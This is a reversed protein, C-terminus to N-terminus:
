HKQAQVACRGSGQPISREWISGIQKVVGKCGGHGLTPRQREPRHYGVPLCCASAVFREGVGSLLYNSQIRPVLHAVDFAKKSTRPRAPYRCRGVYTSEKSTTVIKGATGSSQGPVPGDLCSARFRPLCGRPGVGAVRLRGRSRVELQFCPPFSGGRPFSTRTGPSAPHPDAIFGISLLTVVTYRRQFPSACCAVRRTPEPSLRREAKLVQAERQPVPPKFRM